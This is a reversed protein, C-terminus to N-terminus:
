DKIKNTITSQERERPLVTSFTACCGKRLNQRFTGVDKRVVSNQSLLGAVCAFVIKQQESQERPVSYLMWLGHRRAQVLGTRRLYALHRSIKTQPGGITDEIDCVCLEGTEMLLSLIRLRTEDALARLMTAITKMREM